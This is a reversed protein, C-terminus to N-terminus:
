GANEEAMPASDPPATLVAAVEAGLLVVIWFIYMWLLFIPVGALAGYVHGYSSLRLVFVSFGLRSVELLAAAVVGGALGGRWPVRSNPILTYLITFAMVELM